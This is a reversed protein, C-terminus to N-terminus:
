RTRLARLCALDRNSCRLRTGHVARTGRMRSVDWVFQQQLLQRTARQTRQTQGAHHMKARPAAPIYRSHTTGAFLLTPEEHVVHLRALARIACTLTALVLIRPRVRKPLTVVSHHLSAIPIRVNGRVVVLPTADFNTKTRPLMKDSPRELAPRIRIELTQIEIPLVVIPMVFRAVKTEYGPTGIERIPTGFRVAFFPM